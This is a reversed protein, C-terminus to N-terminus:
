GLRLLPLAAFWVIYALAVAMLGDIRESAGARPLRRVLLMVLVTAHPVVLLATADWPGAEALGFAVALVAAATCAGIGALLVAGGGFRVVLTGKGVARDAAADPVGALAIAPLVALFLPLSLVLPEASSVAGGQLLHGAYVAGFSHTAAVVLEGLGRYSFQLPPVTYGLAIVGFGLFFVLVTWPQPSTAALAALLLAAGGLALAAGHVLAARAILGRQLVRSGGSFPGYCANARDSAEDFVDNTFVTAAELLFLMLYGLWFAVPDPGGEPAAALAGMWYALFTMPYFQLRLAQLWAMLRAILRGAVPERGAAAARGAARARELWAARQSASSGRIPGIRTICTTRIGCFGLTAHAMARYGPAGYILRYVAAPTDMTTLLEATRGGLLGEYGTGGATTRFAWGPVLLRDLAGKLLAPTTGWWTPYVFAIHGAREVATRLMALDPELPQRQPDPLRVHPDFALTSLDVLRPARGGAAAGACYAEAVAGCFSDRGRPHGLIVLLDADEGTGDPMADAGSDRRLSM